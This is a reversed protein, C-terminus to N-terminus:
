INMWEKETEKRKLLNGMFGSFHRPCYRLFYGFCLSYTKYSNLVRNQFIIDICECPRDLQAHCVYIFNDYLKEFNFKKLVWKKSTWTKLYDKLINCVWLIGWNYNM